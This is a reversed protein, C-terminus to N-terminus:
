FPKSTCSNRDAANFQHMPNSLTLELGAFKPDLPFGRGFNPISYKSCSSPLMGIHSAVRQGIIQVLVKDPVLLHTVGGIAEFAHIHAEIWDTLGQTWTAEAYTFGSTGVVAVVIQAKRMEGTLRDIVVPVGDGAYDVFLKEGAAHTQRMTVPLHHEWERYLDRFRSYRYGKPHAESYGDWIMSLTVHKRKIERHVSAWDPEINRRHGQKIGTSAFLRQELVADTVDETLPWSLGSAEFRRLTLRVTAPAVGSRRSIERTSVGANKLRIIERVRGMVVREMPM